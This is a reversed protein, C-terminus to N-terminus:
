AIDMFTQTTSLRFWSFVREIHADPGRTLLTGDGSDVGAMLCARFRHWGNVRGQHVWKRRAKGERVAAWGGYEALKFDNNGGIFLVEFEDWPVEESDFGNQAVFALPYTYRRGMSRWVEWQALTAKHDMFVDPVVAFLVRDAHPVFGSLYFLWEVPGISGRFCGNDLGLPRGDDPVRNGMFPDYMYGVEAPAQQIVDTVAGSLWIM